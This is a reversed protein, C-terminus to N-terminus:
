IGLKEPCRGWREVALGAAAQSGGHRGGPRGPGAVRQPAGRRGLQPARRTSAGPGLFRRLRLHLGGSPCWFSCFHIVKWTVSKIYNPKPFGFDVVFVELPVFDGGFLSGLVRESPCTRFFTRESTASLGARKGRRADEDQLCGGPGPTGGGGRVLVGAGAAGNGGPGLAAAAGRGAGRLWRPGPFQVRNVRIWGTTM